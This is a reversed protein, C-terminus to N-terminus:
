HVNKNQLIRRMEQSASRSDAEWSPRQEMSKTMQAKNLHDIGKPNESWFKIDMESRERRNQM